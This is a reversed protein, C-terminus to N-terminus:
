NEWPARARANLPMLPTSYIKFSVEVNLFKNQLNNSIHHHQYPIIKCVHDDLFEMLLDNGVKFGADHLTSKLEDFEFVEYLLVKQYIKKNNKVFDRMGEVLQLFYLTIIM